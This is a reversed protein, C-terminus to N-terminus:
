MYVTNCGLSCYSSVSISYTNFMAAPITVISLPWCNFWRFILNRIVSNFTWAVGKKTCKVNLISIRQSLLANRTM